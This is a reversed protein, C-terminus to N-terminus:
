ISLGIVYLNMQFHEYRSSVIPSPGISPFLCFPFHNIISLLARFHALAFLAGNLPHGQHTGMAFPIIIVDGERNHHSYFLPSEFAYFTHVFPIFQIIDGNTACLKQFIVGRLMLNFANEM